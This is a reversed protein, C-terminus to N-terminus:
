ADEKTNEGWNVHVFQGIWQELGDSGVVLSKLCPYDVYNMSVGISDNRPEATLSANPNIPHM